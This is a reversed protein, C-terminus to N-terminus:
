NDQKSDDTMPIVAGMSKMFMQVGAQIKNKYKEDQIIPTTFQKGNNGKVDELIKIIHPISEKAFEESSVLGVENVKGDTLSAATALMDIM